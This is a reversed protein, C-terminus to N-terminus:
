KDSYTHRKQERECEIDTDIINREREIQQKDEREERRERDRKQRTKRNNRNNNSKRATIELETKDM